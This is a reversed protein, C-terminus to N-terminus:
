QQAEKAKIITDLRTLMNKIEPSGPEIKLLKKLEDRARKYEHRAMYSRATTILRVRALNDKKPKAPTEKPPKIVPRAAEATAIIKGAEVAAERARTAKDEAELALISSEIALKKAARQQREAEAAPTLEKKEASLEKAQRAKDEAERALITAEVALKKALLERREVEATPLMAAPAEGIFFTSTLGEFPNGEFDVAKLKAQYGGKKVGPSVKWYGYWINTRPDFTLKIESGDPAVATIQYTDIPAEVMINVIDGPLYQRTSAGAQSITIQAFAPEATTLVPLLLAFIIGSYFLNLPKRM